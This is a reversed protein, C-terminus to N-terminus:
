PKAEEQNETAATQARRRREPLLGSFEGTMETPVRRRCEPVMAAHMMGRQGLGAANFLVPRNEAAPPTRPDCGIPMGPVPRSRRMGIQDRLQAHVDLPSIIEVIEETGACLDSYSPDTM